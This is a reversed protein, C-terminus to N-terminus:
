NAAGNSAINRVTPAGARWTRATTFQACPTDPIRPGKLNVANVYVCANHFRPKRESHWCVRRQRSSMEPLRDPLLSGATSILFQSKLMRPKSIKNYKSLVKWDQLRLGVNHCFIIFIKMKKIFPTSNCPLFRLLDFFNWNENQKRM